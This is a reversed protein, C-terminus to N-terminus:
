PRPRAPVGMVTQGDPVDRNVLACAGVCCGVGVKLSELVTASAGIASRERVQVTGCLVSGPGVSVFDDLRCEHEVIAGTNILGHAGIRASANIVAGPMVLTGVGVTVDQALIAAPDVLTPFATRVGTKELRDAIAARIENSGIAIHLGDVSAPDFVAEDVVPCGLFTEVAPAPAVFCAVQWDALRSVVQAAVRAQGGAGFIALQWTM